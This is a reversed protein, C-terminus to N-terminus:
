RGGCRSTVSSWFVFILSPRSCILCIAQHKSTNQCCKEERCRSPALVVEFGRFPRRVCRIEGPRPIPWEVLDVGGVEALEFYSPPKLGVVESTTGLVLQLARGQHNAAHKIRGTSRPTRHECQIRRGTLQEPHM